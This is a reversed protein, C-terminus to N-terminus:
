VRLEWEHVKTKTISIVFCLLHVKQMYHSIEMGYDERALGSALSDLASGALRHGGFQLFVHCLLIPNILHPPESLTDRLLAGGCSSQRIFVERHWQHHGLRHGPLASAACADSVARM